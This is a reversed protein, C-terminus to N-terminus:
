SCVLAPLSRRHNLSRVPPRATPRVSSSRTVCGAFSGVYWRAFPRTEILLQPASSGDAGDVTSRRGASDFRGVPSRAAVRRRGPRALDRGSPARRVPPASASITRLSVPGRDASPARLGRLPPTARSELRVLWAAGCRVLRGVGVGFGGSWELETCRSSSCLRVSPRSTVAAPRLHAPSPSLSHVYTCARVHELREVLKFLEFQRM